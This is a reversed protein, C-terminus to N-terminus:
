KRNAPSDRLCMRIYNRLKLFTTPLIALVMITTCVSQSVNINVFELYGSDSLIQGAFIFFLIVYLYLEFCMMIGVIVKAQKGLIVEVMETYDGVHSFHTCIEDLLIATFYTAFCIGIMVFVCSFGCASMSYPMALVCVGLVYNLCIFVTEGFTCDGTKQVYHHLEPKPQYQEHQKGEEEDLKVITTHIEELSCYDNYYSNDTNNSNYNENSDDNADAIPTYEGYTDYQYNIHDYPYKMRMFVGIIGIVGFVIIVVALAFMGEFGGVEALGNYGQMCLGSIIITLNYGVSVLTGRVNQDTIYTIMSSLMSPICTSAIVCVIIQEFTVGIISNTGYVAVMLLGLGVSVAGATIFSMTEYSINYIDNLKDMFYGLGVLYIFSTIMSIIAGYYSFKDDSSHINQLYDPLWDLVLICAAAPLLTLAMVIFVPVVSLNVNFFVTKLPNELRNEIRDVPLHKRFEFGIFVIMIGCLFPIRWGYLDRADDGMTSDIIVKAIVGLLSGTSGGWMLAQVLALNNHKGDICCVQEYVYVIATSYEGSAAFGQFIRLLFLFFTSWYGIMSYTPICGLLVTAVGMGIFTVFLTQQRGRTDALWGFFVAGFCRGIYAMGFLGLVKVFSDENSLYSPFYADCIEDAFLSILAYDYYEFFSGVVCGSVIQWFSKKLQVENEAVHMPQHLELSMACELM